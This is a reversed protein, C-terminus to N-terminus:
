KGTIAIVDAISGAIRVPTTGAEADPKEPRALEAERVEPLKAPTYAACSEVGDACSVMEGSGGVDTFTASFGALM